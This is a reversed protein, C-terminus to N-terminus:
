YSLMSSFYVGSVLWWRLLCKPMLMGCGLVSEWGVAKSLQVEGM